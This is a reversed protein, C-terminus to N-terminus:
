EGPRTDYHPAGDAIVDWPAKSGVFIHMTPQTNWDTDLTGVRLRLLGPKADRRSYLPSGCQGCFHRHVGPSSTHFRIAEDGSLLELNDASMPAVAAFASGTAKRCAACHCFVLEVPAERLRYRM